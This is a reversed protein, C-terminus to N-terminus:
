MNLNMVTGGSSGPRGGDRRQMMMGGDPSRYQVTGDELVIKEMSDLMEQSPPQGDGTFMPGSGNGTRPRNNNTENSSNKRNM